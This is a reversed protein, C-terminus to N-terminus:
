WCGPAHSRRGSPAPAVGPQDECPPGTRNVLFDLRIPRSAAAQRATVTVTVAVSAATLEVVVPLGAPAPFEAAFPSAVAAAFEADSSRLSALEGRQPDAIVM